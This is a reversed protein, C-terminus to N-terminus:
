TSRKLCFTCYDDGKVTFNGDRKFVEYRNNSYTNLLERFIFPSICVSICDFPRPDDFVALSKSLACTESKVDIIIKDRTPIVAFDGFIDTIYAFSKLLEKYFACEDNFCKQSSIFEGLPFINTFPKILRDAVTEMERADIGKLNFSTLTSVALFRWFDPRISSIVPFFASGPLFSLPKKYKSMNSM